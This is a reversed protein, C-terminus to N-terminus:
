LARRGGFHDSSCSSAALSAPVLSRQFFMLFQTVVICSADRNSKGMSFRWFFSSFMYGLPFWLFHQRSWCGASRSFNDQLNSHSKSSVHHTASGNSPLAQADVTSKCRPKSHYRSRSDHSTSNDGISRSSPFAHLVLVSRHRYEHLHRYVVSYSFVYAKHPLAVEVSQFGSYVSTRKQWARASPERM